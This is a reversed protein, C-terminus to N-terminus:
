KVQAMVEEAFNDVKKEIGEGVEFFAFSDITAAANKVLKGVTIDPDKIFPQESLTIDNMWKKMRGTVMKEIIPLPKGSEKAQATIIAREKDLLDSPLDDASLAQPRSAAIHMAVDKAIEANGGTLKVMVGIRNGHLYTGIMGEPATMIKFRRVQINEGIKAVLSQRVVDVTDGDDNIALAMLEAVDSPKDALTVAVVKNSFAIFDDAGAVFDTETNIEVMAAHHRDASVKIAIVGEAAVRDSKNDAKALGAKRMALVAMDIDGDAEVLAKKCEMMGSGTRERLAKVLEATITM